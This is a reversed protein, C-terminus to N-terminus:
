STLCLATGIVVLLVGFLLMLPEYIKEGILWSTLGTFVFTLSNCIPVAISIDESALLLYFMLSGCQNIIMPVFLRPNSFLNKITSVVKALVSDGSVDMTESGKKVFPNSCGWVAGVILYSLFSTM